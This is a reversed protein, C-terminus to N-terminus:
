NKTISFKSFLKIQIVMKFCNLNRKFIFCVYNFKSFFLCLSFNKFIILNRLSFKYNYFIHFFIFTSNSKINTMQIKYIIVNLNLKYM